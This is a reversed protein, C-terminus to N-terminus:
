SESWLNYSISLQGGLLHNQYYSPLAYIPRGKKDRHQKTYIRMRRIGKIQIRINKHIQYSIGLGFDVDAMLDAERVWIRMRDKNQQSPNLQWNGTILFLRSFNSGLDISIAFRRIGKRYGINSSVDMLQFTRDGEHATVSNNSRFFTFGNGEGRKLIETRQNVSAKFYLGNQFELSGTLGLPSYIRTSKTASPNNVTLISADGLGWYQLTYGLYFDQSYSSQYLLLCGIFVLLNKM